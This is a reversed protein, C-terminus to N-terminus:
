GTTDGPLEYAGANSRTGQPRPNGEIDDTVSPIPEVADVGPCGPKLRLDGAAPDVFLEDPTALTSSADFGLAQWEAFAIVSEGDDTTFRDELVNHDSVLGEMSGPAVNIAGRYSEESHLINGELRNGTCGDNPITVAWRGDDAVLVTNHQVLTDSSCIAGGNQFLAIGTAHTDAVVNNRVTAGEVGDLNIAAGGGGGNGTILNGEIMAGSIVGDGGMTVDANLQIGSAFNDRVVNGRLVPRDGSNSVYIGHEEGAGFSENGEILLDDAFDTFIGWTGNDALVNGRVTVHDSESVRLGARPANEIRFDEWVVYSSTGILVADREVGSADIVVGPGDAKVTVPADATGAVDYMEVADTYIGPRVLVTDGPGVADAARQITQWPLDASGDGTADDGDAAVYFTGAAAVPRDGGVGAVASLALLLAVLAHVARTAFGPLAPRTATHRPTV